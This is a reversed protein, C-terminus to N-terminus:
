SESFNMSIAPAAASPTKILVEHNEPLGYQQIQADRQGAAGLASRIQDITVDQDFKVTLQTGGAFDIGFNLGGLAFFEVGTAVLLAASVWVFFKRYRLFPIKTDTLFEM